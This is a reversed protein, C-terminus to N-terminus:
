GGNRRFAKDVQSHHLGAIKGMRTRSLGLAACKEWIRLRRKAKSALAARDRDM